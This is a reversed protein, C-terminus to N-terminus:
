PIKLQPGHRSVSPIEHNEAEAWIEWCGDRIKTCMCVYRTCCGFVQASSPILNHSAGAAALAAAARWPLDFSCILRFLATCARIVDIVAAAACRRAGCNCRPRPRQEWRWACKWGGRGRAPVRGGGAPTGAGGRSGCLAATRYSCQGGNQGIYLCCGRM